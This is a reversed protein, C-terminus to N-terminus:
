DDSLIKFQQETLSYLLNEWYNQTNFLPFHIPFAPDDWRKALWAAYHLMRLARLPEILRIEIPNFDFFQYYGDLFHDLQARMEAENGSLMMWIDQIAPGMMCDDLDVIQPGNDNWLVNGPHCDGHLRISPAAKVKQFSKEILALLEEVIQCFKTTLYEPIFHNDILFRYSQYGLTEPTLQLRHQFVRSNSVAHMRGIFRGMWELQDLNGLELARGGQRPFLAFRYDQYHHLTNQNLNLPAVVPIELDLLEQAFQHEELLAENSWRAPRYFKAIIPLSDEVGIQYVRNEYSNLAILSGTCQVGASEIAALILEPTLDSYPTPNLHPESAKLVM